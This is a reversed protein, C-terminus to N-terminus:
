AGDKEDKLYENLDNILADLFLDKSGYFTYTKNLELFSDRIPLIWMFGQRKDALNNFWSSLPGSNNDLYCSVSARVLTEYLVSEWTGYAEQHKHNGYDDLLLKGTTELKSPYEDIVPNCMPHCFEHIIGSYDIALKHSNLHAGNISYITQCDGIITQSGYSCSGNNLSVVVQFRMNQPLEGFFSTFWDFNVSSNIEQEIDKIEQEYRQNQSQFFNSFKSDDAFKRVLDSLHYYTEEDWRPNFDEPLKDYSVSPTLSDTLYVAFSMPSDYGTQYKERIDKLFSVAEHNRFAGFYNDVDSKYSAIQSRDYEDYDSLYCLIAVLEVRPDLAVEVKVKNNFRNTCGTLFIGSFLAILVLKKM